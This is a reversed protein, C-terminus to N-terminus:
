WGATRTTTLWHRSSVPIKNIVEIVTEGHDPQVDPIVGSPASRQEVEIGLRLLRRRM